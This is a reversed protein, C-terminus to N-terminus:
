PTRSHAADVFDQWAVLVHRQRTLAGWRETAPESRLTAPPINLNSM